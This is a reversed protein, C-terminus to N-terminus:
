LWRGIQKKYALYDSGFKQELYREEKRIVFHNLTAILPVQLLLIWLSNAGFSAGIGLILFSLYIPNRSFRYPGARVIQSTTKWPEIATQAKRFMWACYAIIGIGGGILLPGLTWRVAQPVFYIPLLMQLGIGLLISTLLYFPPPIRVHASDQDANM